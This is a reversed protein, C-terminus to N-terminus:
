HRNFRIDGPTYPHETVTYTLKLPFEGPGTAIYGAGSHPICDGYM